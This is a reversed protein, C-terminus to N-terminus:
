LYFNNVLIIEQYIEGLWKWLDYSTEEEYVNIQISNTLYLWIIGWVKEDMKDWEDRDMKKPKNEKTTVLWHGREKFLDEKKLKWPEYYTRNFEDFDLFSSSTAM